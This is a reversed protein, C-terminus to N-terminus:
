QYTVLLGDKVAQAIGASDSQLTQSEGTRPDRVLITTPLGHSTAISGKVQKLQNIFEADSLNRSLASAASELTKGEFDSVAGQGKLKSRNELALIGKLQQFQNKAVKTDSSMLIGPKLQDISGTLSSLKPNNLLTNILNISGAAATDNASIAAASNPNDQNAKQQSIAVEKAKLAYDLGYQRKDEEFKRDNQEKDQQLKKEDFAQKVKDQERQYATKEAEGEQTLLNGYLDVGAKAVAQASEAGTQAIGIENQLREAEPQTQELLRRQEGRVLELPIGRGQGSKGAVSKNINAVYDNYATKAQKIDASENLSDIYNKYAALYDAKTSSTPTEPTTQQITPVPSASASSGAVSSMYGQAAPTNLSTNSSKGAPSIVTKNATTAGPSASPYSTPGMKPTLATQAPAQYAPTVPKQSFNQIASSVSSGFGVKPKKLSSVFNQILNAM